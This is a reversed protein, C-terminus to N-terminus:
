DGQRSQISRRADVALAGCSAAGAVLLVTSLVMFGLLQPPSMSSIPSMPLVPYTGFVVWPVLAGISFARVDGQAFVAAIVLPTPVLCYMVGAFLTDIGVQGLLISQGLVVAVVTVAVMQARPSFQFRAM